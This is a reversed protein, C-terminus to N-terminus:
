GTHATTRAFEDLRVDNMFQHLREHLAHIPGKLSCGRYQGCGRADHQCRVWHVPGEIAEIIDGLSISELSQTLRYGGRAGHVAEVLGARALAQMVKGLLEVPIGNAEAIEKSPWAHTQDGQGHVYLLAMLGYEVKRSLMWM